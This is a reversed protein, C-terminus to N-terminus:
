KFTNILEINQKLYIGGSIATVAALAWMAINSYFIVDPVIVQYISAFHLALLVGCIAVMQFATKIKGWINAAIVKGESSVAALRIASVMFDRAVIIIGAVPPAFGLACLAILASTVLVKDALPDMFKGFSTVMNNKRAIRGDLFDTFSAICFVVFALLYNYPITPILLFVLFVPVLVARLITLKNPLNM